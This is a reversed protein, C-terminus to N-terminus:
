HRLILGPHLELERIAWQWDSTRGVAACLRFSCQFPTFTKTIVINSNKSSIMRQIDSFFCM